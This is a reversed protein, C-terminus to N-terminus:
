LYNLNLMLEQERAIGLVNMQYIRIFNGGVPTTYKSYKSYNLICRFTGNAELTLNQFILISNYIREPNIRNTNIDVDGWNSM